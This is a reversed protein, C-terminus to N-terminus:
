DEMNELEDYAKCIREVEERLEGSLAAQLCGLADRLEGAVVVYKGVMMKDKIRELRARPGSKAQLHHLAAIAGAEEPTM